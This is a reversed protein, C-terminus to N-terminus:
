KQSTSHTPQLTAQEHSLLWKKRSLGGGFGGLSGNKNIIRHCPVIISLKNKGNANAVARFGNPRKLNKAQSQYSQTTGHPTKLLENWTQKQFDTGLMRLPTKFTTLTGSFYQKLEETASTLPASLNEEISCPLQKKLAALQSALRAPEDFECMLLHTEDGLLFLKGLPSDVWTSYLRKM